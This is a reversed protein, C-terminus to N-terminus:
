SYQSPPDAGARWARVDIPGFESGYIAGGSGRAAQDFLMSIRAIADAESLAAITLVLRVHDEGGGLLRAPQLDPRHAELWAVQQESKRLVAVGVRYEAM